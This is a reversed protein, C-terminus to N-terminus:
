GHDDSSHADNNLNGSTLASVKQDYGGAKYKLINSSSLDAETSQVSATGGVLDGSKLTSGSFKVTGAAVTGGYTHGAAEITVGTLALKDVHYNAESTTVGSFEYNDADNKDNGSSLGGAVTQKYDGAKLNGSTSNVVDKVTATNSASVLDGTMVDMGLTVAGTAKVTGYVADTVADIGATTITKKAVTYSSANTVESFTYNDADNNTNGSTVTTVKQDYSGAKLNNSTSLDAATSQVSATGGVVDGSKL